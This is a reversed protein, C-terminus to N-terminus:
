EDMMFDILKKGLNSLRYNINTGGDSGIGGSVINQTMVGLSKLYELKEFTYNADKFQSLGKIGDLVREGIQHVNLCEEKPIYSEKTVKAQEDLWQKLSGDVYIKLIEIDELSLQDLISYLKEIEFHKKDSSSTFGILIRQIIKRKQERRAQIYSRFTILFGEQFEPDELVERLFVDPHRQILEVFENVKHQNFQMYVGFLGIASYWALEWYPNAVLFTALTASIYPIVGEKVAALTGAKSDKNLM